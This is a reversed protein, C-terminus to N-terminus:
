FPKPLTVTLTGRKGIIAQITGVEKPTFGLQILFDRPCKLKARITDEGTPSLNFADDGDRDYAQLSGRCDKVFGSHTVLITKPPPNENQKWLWFFIFMDGKQDASVRKHNRKVRDPQYMQAIVQVREDGLRQSGSMSGWVPAGSESAHMYVWSHPKFANVTDTHSSSDRVDLVDPRNFVGGQANLALLVLASGVILVPLFRVRGM